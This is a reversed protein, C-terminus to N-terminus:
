VHSLLQSWAAVNYQVYMYLISKFEIMLLMVIIISNSNTDTATSVEFFLNLAEKENNAVRVTLGKVSVGKM